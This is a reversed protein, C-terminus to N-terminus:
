GDLDGGENLESDEIGFDSIRFSVEKIMMEGGGVVAGTVGIVGGTVSSFFWLGLGVFVLLGIVVWVRKDMCFLRCGLKYIKVRILGLIKYLGDM